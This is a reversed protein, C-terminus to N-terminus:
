FIRHLCKLLCKFVIAFLPGIYGIYWPLVSFDISHQCQCFVRYRYIGVYLFFVSLSFLVARLRRCLYFFFLFSFLIFHVSHIWDKWILVQFIYVVVGFSSTWQRCVFYCFFFFSFCSCFFIGFVLLWFSSSFFLFLLRTSHIRASIIQIHTCHIYIIEVPFNSYRIAFHVLFSFFFLLSILSSLSFLYM